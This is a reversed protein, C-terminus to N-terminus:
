GFTEKDRLDYCMKDISATMVAIHTEQNRETLDNTIIRYDYM